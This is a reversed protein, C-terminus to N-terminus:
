SDVSRSPTSNSRRSNWASKAESSWASPMVAKESFRLGCNRPRYPRERPRALRRTDIAGTGASPVVTVHKVSKDRSLDTRMRGAPPPHAYADALASASPNASDAVCQVGEAGRTGREVSRGPSRM